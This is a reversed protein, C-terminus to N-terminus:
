GTVLCTEGTSWTLLRSTRKGKDDYQPEIKALPVGVLIGQLKGFDSIPQSMALHNMTSGCLIPHVVQERSLHGYRKTPMRTSYRVRAAGQVM